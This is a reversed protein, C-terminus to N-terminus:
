LKFKIVSSPTPLLLIRIKYYFMNRFKHQYLLTTFNLIQTQNFYEKGMDYFCVLRFSNCVMSGSNDVLYFANPVVRTIFPLAVTLICLMM